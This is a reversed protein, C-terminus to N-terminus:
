ELEKSEEHIKKWHQIKRQSLFKIGISAKRDLAKMCRCQLNNCEYYAFIATNETNINAEKFNMFTDCWYCKHLEQTWSVQDM